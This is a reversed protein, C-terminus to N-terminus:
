MNAGQRPCVDHEATRRCSSHAPTSSGNQLSQASVSAIAEFPSVIVFIMCVVTDSHASGCLVM